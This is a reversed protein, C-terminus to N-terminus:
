FKLFRKRWNAKRKPKDDEDEEGVVRLFVEDLTTPSVSYYELGIEARNSELLQILGPIGGLSTTRELDHVNHSTRDTMELSKTSPSSTAPPSSAAKLVKFRLQGHGGDKSGWKDMQVGPIRSSVWQKVSNMEETSTAPASKLV